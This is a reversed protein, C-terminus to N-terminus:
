KNNVNCWPMTVLSIQVFNLQFIETVCIARYYESPLKQNGLAIWQAANSDSQGTLTWYSFSNMETTYAHVLQLEYFITTSPLWLPRVPCGFKSSVPCDAISWYTLPVIALTSPLIQCFKHFINFFFAKQFNFFFNQDSLFIVKTFLIWNQFLFRKLYTELKDSWFKLFARKWALTCQALSNEYFLAKIYGMYFPYM